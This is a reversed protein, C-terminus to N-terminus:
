WSSQYEYFEYKDNSLLKELQEATYKIDYWYNEDYEMTGFFFGEKTPLLQEASTNDALVIRCTNLLCMLQERSVYYRACNDINEQVNEVFWRHIANAKRWYIVEERCVKKDESWVGDLFMSLGM